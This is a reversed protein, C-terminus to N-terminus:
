LRFDVVTQFHDRSITLVNYTVFLFCCCVAPSDETFDGEIMGVYAKEQFKQVQALQADLNEKLSSYNWLKSVAAKNESIMYSCGLCDRITDGRYWCAEFAVKVYVVM